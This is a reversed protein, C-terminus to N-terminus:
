LVRWNSVDQWDPFSAYSLNEFIDAINSVHQQCNSLTMTQVLLGAHGAALRRHECSFIHKWHKWFVQLIGWLRYFKFHIHGFQVTASHGADSVEKLISNADHNLFFSFLAVSERKGYYKIYNIWFIECFPWMCGTQKANAESSAKFNLFCM